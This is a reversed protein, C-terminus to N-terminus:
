VTTRQPLKVNARAIMGINKATIRCMPLKGRMATTQILWKVFRLVLRRIINPVVTLGRMREPRAFVNPM